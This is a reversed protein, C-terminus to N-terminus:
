LCFIDDISTVKQRKWQTCCAKPGRRWRQLWCIGQLLLLFAFKLFIKLFTDSFVDYYSVYV